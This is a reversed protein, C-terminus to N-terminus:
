IALATSFMKQIINFHNAVVVFDVVIQASVRKPDRAARAEYTRARSRGFSRGVEGDWTRLHQMLEELHSIM